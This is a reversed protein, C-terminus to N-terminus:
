KMIEESFRKIYDEAEEYYQIIIIDGERLRWGSSPPTVYWIGERRLAIIDVGYRGLNLDKLMMGDYKKPIKIIKYREDTEELVREIIPHPRVGMRLSYTMDMAADGYNECANIFEIMALKEKPRLSDAEMINIKLERTLDDLYEELNEIEKALEISGSFLSAYALDIMVESTNKIQHVSDIISEEPIKMGEIKIGLGLKEVLAQINEALGKVFIVDGEEIKFDEEPAM